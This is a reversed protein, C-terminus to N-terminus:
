KTNDSSKEQKSIYKEIYAARVASLENQFERYSFKSWDTGKIFESM